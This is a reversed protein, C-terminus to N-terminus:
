NLLQCYNGSYCLGVCVREQSSLRGTVLGAQLISIPRHWAAPHGGWLKGWEEQDGLGREAPVRAEQVERERGWLQADWSRERSYHSNAAACSMSGVCACLLGEQWTVSPRPQAYPMKWINLKMRLVSSLFSAGPQLPLVLNNKTYRGQLGSAESCCSM